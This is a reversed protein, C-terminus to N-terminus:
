GQWNGNGNEVSDPPKTCHKQQIYGTHHERRQENQEVRTRDPKRTPKQFTCRPLRTDVPFTNTTLGILAEASQGSRNTRIHENLKNACRRHHLKLFYEPIGYPDCNTMSLRLSADRPGVRYVRRQPEPRCSLLREFDTKM